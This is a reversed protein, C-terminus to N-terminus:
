PPASPPAADSYSTASARPHIRRYEISTSGIADRVVQKFRIFAEYAPDFALARAKRANDLAQSAAIAENMEAITAEAQQGFTGTKVEMAWSTTEHADVIEMLMNIARIRDTDTTLQKFTAPLKTTPVFAKVISRAERFPQDFQHIAALAENREKAYVSEAKMVTRHAALYVEAPQELMGVYTARVSAKVQPAEAIEACRTLARTMKDYHMEAM